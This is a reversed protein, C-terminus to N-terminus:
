QDDSGANGNAPERCTAGHPGRRNKVGYPPEGREHDGVRGTGVHHAQGHEHGAREEGAHQPGSPSTNKQYQPWQEDHPLPPGRGSDDRGGSAVWRCLDRVKLREKGVKCGNRHVPYLNREGSGMPLGIENGIMHGQGTSPLSLEVVFVVLDEVGRPERRQGIERPQGVVGHLIDGKGVDRKVEGALGLRGEQSGADWPHSFNPLAVMPPYPCQRSCSVEYLPGSRQDPCGRVREVQREGGGARCNQSHM